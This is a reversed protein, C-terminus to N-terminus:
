ENTSLFGVAQNLFVFCFQSIDSMILTWSSKAEPVSIFPPQKQGSRPKLDALGGVLGLAPHWCSAEPVAVWRRGPSVSGAAWEEEQGWEKGLM